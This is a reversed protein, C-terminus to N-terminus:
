SSNVVAILNKHPEADAGRRKRADRQPDDKPSILNLLGNVCNTVYRTSDLERAADAIRQSLEVGRPTATEAIENGISYLIVCPHNYDKAIMSELDRQWWQEFHRSYDGALKPRYWVDTLEDMVLMGHRDCAELLARSAPNHASRVANYGAAKLIRIRRDEAAPLGHAGIVGHDHHICGGRLKIPIGNLRLGNRADLQLTRIGFREECGDLVHEREILRARCTYLDPNDPSWPRADPVAFDHRLTRTSDAPLALTDSHDLIQHGHPDRVTHTLTLTRESPGSNTITTTVAITAHAGDLEVTHIRVGDPVIHVANGVLLTVPRHIGSGSYWRSNPPGDNRAVVELTNGTGYALFSDAEVRFLAYGNPRAGALHGNLFVECDQYVGEFEVVVHRDRWEAPAHFTKTYRYVGGPYYGTNWSNRCDPARKEYFMADHPLTIPGHAAGDDATLYWDDNFPIRIV